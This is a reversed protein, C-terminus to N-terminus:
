REAINLFILHPAEFGATHTCLTNEQIKKTYSGRFGRAGGEGAGIGAVPRASPKPENKKLTCVANMRQKDIIVGRRGPVIPRMLTPCYQSGNFSSGQVGYGVEEEHSPPARAWSLASPKPNLDDKWHTNTL